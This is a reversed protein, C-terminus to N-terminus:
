LGLVVKAPLHGHRVEVVPPTAGDRLPSVVGNIQGRVDIPPRSLGCESLAGEFGSCDYQNPSVLGWEFTGPAM